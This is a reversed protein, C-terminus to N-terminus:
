EGHKSERLTLQTASSGIASDLLFVCYGSVTRGLPWGVTKTVNLELPQRIKVVTSIALAITVHVVLGHREKLGSLPPASASALLLLEVLAAQAKAVDVIISASVVLDHHAAELAHQSDVVRLLWFETHLIQDQFLIKAGM